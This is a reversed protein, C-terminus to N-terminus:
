VMAAQRVPCSGDLSAHIGVSCASRRERRRSVARLIREHLFIVGFHQSRCMYTAFLYIHVLVLQWMRRLINASFMTAKADM